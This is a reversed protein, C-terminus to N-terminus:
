SPKVKGDRIRAVYERTWGTAEVVETLRGRPTPDPFLQPILSRIRDRDEDNKRDRERIRRAIARVEELQQQYDSNM